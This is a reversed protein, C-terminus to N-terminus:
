IQRMSFYSTFTTLNFLPGYLLVWIAICWYRSRCQRLVCSVRKDRTYQPEHVTALAAMCMAAVTCLPYFLIKHVAARTSRSGCYMSGEFKAAATCLGCYVLYKRDWSPYFTDRTSCSTYQPVAAQPELQQDLWFQAAIQTTKYQGTLFYSTFTLINFSFFDLVCNSERM